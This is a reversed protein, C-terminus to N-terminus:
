IWGKSVWFHPPNRTHCVMPAVPRGFGPTDRGVPVGPPRRGVRVRETM